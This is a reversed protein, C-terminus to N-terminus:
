KPLTNMCELRVGKGILEEEIELIRRVQGPVPWEGTEWKSISMQTVPQGPFKLWLAFESQSWKRRRRFERITM